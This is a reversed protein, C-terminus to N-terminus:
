AQRLVEDPGFPRGSRWVPLTASIETGHKTSDVSLKTSLTSIIYMGRGGEQLDCPAGFNPVFGTGEDIVTLIPQVDDWVLHMEISGSAYLIANALLEGCILEAAAFDSQSAGYARLLHIFERRVKQSQKADLSRYTWEM